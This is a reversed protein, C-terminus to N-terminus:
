VVVYEVVLVLKGTLLAQVAVVAILAREGTTIAAFSAATGLSLGEVNGADYANAGNSIAIAAKIGAAADTEVGLAITASDDASTFTIKNRYFSRTIVAGTPLKVVAGTAPDTLQYTGTNKGGTADFQAVAQKVVGRSNTADAAGLAAIIADPSESVLVVDQKQNGTFYQFQTGGTVAKVYSMKDSEFLQAVPGQLESNISICTLKIQSM